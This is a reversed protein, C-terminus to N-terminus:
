IKIITKFVKLLARSQCYKGLRNSHTWSQAVPGAVVVVTVLLTVGGLRVLIENDVVLLRVAIEAM